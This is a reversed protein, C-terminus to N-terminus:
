RKMLWHGGGDGGDAGGLLERRPKGSQRWLALLVVNCRQQAGDCGFAILTNPLDRDIYENSGFFM